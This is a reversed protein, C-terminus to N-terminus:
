ITLLKTTAGTSSSSTIQVWYLEVVGDQNYLHIHFYNGPTYKMSISYVGITLNVPGTVNNGSGELIIPPGPAPLYVTENHWVDVNVTENHWREVYEIETSEQPGRIAYGGIVGIGILACAIIVVLLKNSLIMDLPNNTGLNAGSINDIKKVM